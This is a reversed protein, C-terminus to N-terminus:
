KLNIYEDTYEELLSDRDIYHSDELYNDDPIKEFEEIALEMARELSDTEVEITLIATYVFPIKYIKKM